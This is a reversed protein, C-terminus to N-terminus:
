RTAGMVLNPIWLVLGPIYTILGLCITIAVIYPGLERALPWIPVKSISSVAYLCM